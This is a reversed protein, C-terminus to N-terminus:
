LHSLVKVMSHRPRYLVHLPNARTLTLGVGEAMDVEERGVREWEFCQILGALAFQVVKMALGSGPCKRRGFGFPIMKFGDDREELGSFREPIFRTPEPWLKPDRHIAWANVFLITGRPIDYGGINCDEGLEHPLLLPGAPYLRLTEKVICHLYTLNALDSEEVLRDTGVRADLEDRAKKLVDPNNLLLAIAWDLTTATTDTGAALMVMMVGRILLDTYYEPETEQLSLLFDILSGRSDGADSGGDGGDGGRRKRREEDVLGQFLVERRNYCGKMQREIGQLDLWRLAPIYDGISVAGQLAMAEKIVALFRRSEESRAVGKEYWRRGTVMRVITDFALAAVMSSLEVQAFGAPDSGEFLQRLLSQVEDRRLGAFAQLRASSLVELTAIRRLNRWHPGYSTWAITTYNNGMYRGALLHPRNAFAIDHITFCEEVLDPSSVILALRSGLRLSLTPGHKASLDALSRYLPKKLLHLHGIIPLAPPSPPLNKPLRDKHLFKFSIGLIASFFLFLLLPTCLFEM